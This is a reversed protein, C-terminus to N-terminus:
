TGTEHYWIRGGTKRNHLSYYFGSGDPKLAAGYYLARPLRDPLKTRSETNMLRLETEDEGGIRIGYLLLKGDASIDEVTINTTNDPSLKHPDILVKDKGDIGNRMYLIWLEDDARKKWVFYKDGRQDPSAMKDIRTLENLRKKIQDNYPLDALLQHTYKNQSDIWARTDPSEQDELWRYPDIIITNHLTDAINDQRTPPADQSYTISNLTVIYFLFLFVTVRFRSLSIHCTIKM